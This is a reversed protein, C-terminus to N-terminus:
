PRTALRKWKELADRTAPLPTSGSPYSHRKLLDALIDADQHRSCGARLM